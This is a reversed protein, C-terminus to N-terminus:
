GSMNDNVFIIPGIVSFYICNYPFILVFHLNGALSLIFKVM